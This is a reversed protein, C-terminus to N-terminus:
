LLVWGLCIRTGKSFTLLYRSLQPNELWREPVFESPNPFLEPNMNVSRADMSISTGPAFTTTTGTRPDIYQLPKDPSIRQMRLIGGPHMRLGEQIVASLYPLKELESLSMPSDPNPLAQLLEARLKNLKDPNALLEFILPSATSGTTSFGALIILEAEQHLRQVSKESPPMKAEM